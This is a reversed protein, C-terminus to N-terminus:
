HAGQSTRQSSRHGIGRTRHLSHASTHPEVFYLLSSLWDLEEHTCSASAYIFKTHLPHHSETLRYANPQGESTLWWINQHTTTAEGVEEMASHELSPRSAKYFTHGIRWTVSSSTFKAFWSRAFVPILSGFIPFSSPSCLREHTRSTTAGNSLMKRIHHRQITLWQIQEKSIKPSLDLRRRHENM